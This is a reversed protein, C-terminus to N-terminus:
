LGGMERALQDSLILLLIFVGGGIENLSRMTVVTLSSLLNRM